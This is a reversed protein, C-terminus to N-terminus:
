CQPAIGAQDTSRGNKHGRNFVQRKYVDLHTYSVTENNEKGCFVCVKKRRRGGRRKMPSDPRESKNYAM